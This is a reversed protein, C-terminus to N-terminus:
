YIGMVWGIVPAAFSLAGIFMGVIAIRCELECTM